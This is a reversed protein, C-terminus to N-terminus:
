EEDAGEESDEYDEDAPKCDEKKKKKGGNDRNDLRIQEKICSLYKRNASVTGSKQIDRTRQFLCSVTGVTLFNPCSTVSSPM